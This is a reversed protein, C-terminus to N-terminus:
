SSPSRCRGATAGSTCPPALRGATWRRHGRRRAGKKAPKKSGDLLIQDWNIGHLQQYREALRRWVTHFADLALWTALRRQVTKVSVGARNAIDELSVNRPTNSHM